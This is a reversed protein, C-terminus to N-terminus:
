WEPWHRTRYEHERRQERREERHRQRWAERQWDPSRYGRYPECYYVGAPGVCTAAHAKSMMAMGILAIVFAFGAFLGLLIGDMLSRM